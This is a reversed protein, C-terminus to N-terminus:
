MIATEYKKAKIPSYDTVNQRLCKQQEQKLRAITPMLYEIFFVMDARKVKTKFLVLLYSRSEMAYNDSNLDFELLRLPLEGFFKKPGMVTLFAGLCDNWPDYCGKARKIENVVLLFQGLQHESIHPGIKEVFTKLIRLVLEQVDFFRTTLLYCM